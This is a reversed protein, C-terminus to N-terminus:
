QQRELRIALGIVEPSMRGAGAIDVAVAMGVDDDARRPRAALLRTRAVGVDVRSFITTTQQRQGAFARAILEAAGDCARGDVLAREDDDARWRRSLGLM